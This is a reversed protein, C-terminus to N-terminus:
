DTREIGGVWVRDVVQRNGAFQNAIQLADNKVGFTIANGDLIVSSHDVTTSISSGSFEPNIDFASQINHRVDSNSATSLYSMAPPLNDSGPQTNQEQAVMSIAFLMVLTGIIWKM